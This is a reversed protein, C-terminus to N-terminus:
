DDYDNEPDKTPKPAMDVIDPDVRTEWDACSNDLLAKGVSFVAQFTSYDEETAFMNRFIVESSSLTLFSAM